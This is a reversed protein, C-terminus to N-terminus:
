YAEIVYDGRHEIDAVGNGVRWAVGLGLYSDEPEIDDDIINEIDDLTCHFRKTAERMTPYQTGRGIDEHRKAYKRAWNFLEQATM